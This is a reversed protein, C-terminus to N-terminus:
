KTVGKTMGLMFQVLIMFIKFFKYLM